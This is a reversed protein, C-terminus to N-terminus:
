YNLTKNQREVANYIREVIRFGKGTQSLHSLYSKKQNKKRILISDIGINITIKYNKLNWHFM